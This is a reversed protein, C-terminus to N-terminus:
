FHYNVGVKVSWIDNLKIFNGADKDDTIDYTNVRDNFWIYQGEAKVSWAESIAYEVGAGVVLGLDNLKVSGMQTPDSIRADDNASFKTDTLAVGFTGFFLANEHAYGARARITALYNTEFEVSEPTSHGNNLYDRLNSFTVDGELGYVFNGSQQNYGVQIGALLGDDTLKFPGGGDIMFDVNSFGDDDYSGNLDSGGFGVHGGVYFGSWDHTSATASQLQQDSDAIAIQSSGYLLVAAILYKRV